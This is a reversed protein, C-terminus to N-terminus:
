LIPLVSDVKQRSALHTNIIKRHAEWRPHDVNLFLVSWNNALLEGTVIWRPKASSLALKRRDMLHKVAGDAM